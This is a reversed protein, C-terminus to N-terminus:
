RYMHKTFVLHHENGSYVLAHHHIGANRAAQTLEASSRIIIKIRIGNSSTGQLVLRNATEESTVRELGVIKEGTADQFVFPPPHLKVRAVIKDKQEDPAFFPAGGNARLLWRLSDHLGVIPHRGGELPATKKM